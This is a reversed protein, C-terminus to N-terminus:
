GTWFHRETYASGPQASASIPLSEVIRRRARMVKAIMMAIAMKMMIRM